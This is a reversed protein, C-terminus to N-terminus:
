KVQAVLQRLSTCRLKRFGRYLPILFTEMFFGASVERSFQPEQHLRLYWAHLKPHQEMPYGAVKLRHASIYWAIDLVSLKNGLLWLDSELRKNLLEFASEFSHYSSLATERTVGQIAFNEWWQVEKQRSEDNRGQERYRKLIKPSKKTLMRPFIFGMTLNRLDTHLRDELELSQEAFAIDEISEPFLPIHETPIKDLHRLIDNSEIHVEGNDVLVPVVGRPNIGLFWSSTHEQQALNIPHSVYNLQKINLFIRVKQSCSSMKFHLLHLGNWDKVSTTSISADDLKM